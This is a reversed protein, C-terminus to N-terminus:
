IIMVGRPMVIEQGHRETNSSLFASRANQYDQFILMREELPLRYSHSLNYALGKVIMSLASQPFDVEQTSATISDFVALRRYAYTFGNDPVPYMDVTPPYTDYNGRAYLPVGPTGKSPLADYDAYDLVDIPYDGGENSLWMHIIRKTGAALTYRTQGDVMTLTQVDRKHIYVGDNVLSAMFMNLRKLADTLEDATPSEGIAIAGIDLLALEVIESATLTFTQVGSTAM